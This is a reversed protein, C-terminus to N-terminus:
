IWRLLLCCLWPFMCYLTSWSSSIVNSRIYSRRQGPLQASYNTNTSCNGLNVWGEVRRPITFNLVLWLATISQPQLPLRLDPPFYHCGVVPHIVKVQPSVPQVSPDAGPGVSPLSYPYDKGKKSCNPVISRVPGNDTSM